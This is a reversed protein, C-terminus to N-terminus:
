AVRNGVSNKYWFNGMFTDNGAGYKMVLSFKSEMGPIITTPAAYSARCTYLIFAKYRLGLM